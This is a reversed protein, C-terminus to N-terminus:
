PYQVFWPHHLCLCRLLKVQPFWQRSCLRNSPRCSRFHFSSKPRHPCLPRFLILFSLRSVPNSPAGYKHHLEHVVQSRHGQQAVRGLWLDSFRALWPGPFARLGYPDVLWYLLHVVIVVTPIILVVSVPHIAMLSPWTLPSDPWCMYIYIYSIERCVSRLM